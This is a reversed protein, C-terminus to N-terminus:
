QFLSYLNDVRVHTDMTFGEAYSAGIHRGHMRCRAKVFEFFDLSSIPTEPEKSNPDYFQSKFAMIARIKDDFEETIDVAIAPELNYDQIYHLTKKVAWAEQNKGEYQSAVKPLGALFIAQKTLTAARGHDPHRDRIANALIIDPKCQRIVTIINLIENERIEFFGDKMKLNVRFTAQSIIAAEAAEEDRLDASGRTGLEGRTLDLIGFSYGLKWHKILTGICGLEVDDPHVGIGLINVPLIQNM